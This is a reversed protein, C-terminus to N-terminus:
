RRWKWGIMKWIFNKLFSFYFLNSFSFCLTFIRQIASKPEKGRQNNGAPFSLSTTASEQHIPKGPVNLIVYPKRISTADNLSLVRRWGNIETSTCHSFASRRRRTESQNKEKKKGFIDIGNPIRETERRGDLTRRFGIPEISVSNM